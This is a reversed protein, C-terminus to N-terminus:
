GEFTHFSQGNLLSLDHFILRLHFFSTSPIEDFTEPIVLDDLMESLVVELAGFLM